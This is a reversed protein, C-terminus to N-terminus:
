RICVLTGNNNIIDRYGGCNRLDLSARHMRGERTRCSATLTTVTVHPRECSQAYGGDPVAGGDGFSGPRARCRLLGDDNLIDTGLACAALNLWSGIQAGDTSRCVARLNNLAFGTVTCTRLYSGDPAAGVPAPPPVPVNGTRPGGLDGPRPQAVAPALAFAAALLATGVPRVVSRVLM